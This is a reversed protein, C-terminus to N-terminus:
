NIEFMAVPVAGNMTDDVVCTALKLTAVAPLAFRAPVTVVFACGLIVLIPLKTPSVTLLEDPTTLKDLM